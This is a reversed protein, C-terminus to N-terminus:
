HGRFFDAKSILWALPPSVFYYFEVFISGLKSTLLIEDRFRRFTLVEPALSSGYAATAIFCGSKKSAQIESEEMMTYLEYELGTTVIRLGNDRKGALKRAEDIVAPDDIPFSSVKQLYFKKLHARLEPGDKKISVPEGRHDRLTKLEEFIMRVRAEQEPTM